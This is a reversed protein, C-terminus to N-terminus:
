RGTGWYAISAELMFGLDLSEWLGRATARQEDSLAPNHLANRLSSEFERIASPLRPIPLMDRDVRASECERIYEALLSARRVVGVLAGLTHIADAASMRRVAVGSMRPPVSDARAANATKLLIPIPIKRQPPGMSPQRRASSEPRGVDPWARSVPMAAIPSTPWSTFYRGIVNRADQQYANGMEGWLRSAARNVHAARERHAPLNSAALRAAGFTAHWVSLEAGARDGFQRLQIQALVLNTEPQTGLAGNRAAAVTSALMERKDQIWPGPESDFGRQIEALGRERAAPDSDNLLSSVMDIWGALLESTGSNRTGRTRSPRASRPPTRRPTRATASPTRM